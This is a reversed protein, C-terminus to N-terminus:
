PLRSCRRPVRRRRGGVPLRDSGRGPRVPTACPRTLMVACRRARDDTGLRCVPAIWRDGLQGLSGADGRRSRGRRRGSARARDPRARPVLPDTRVAQPHEAALALGSNLVQLAREPRGLVLEVWLAWFITITAAAPGTASASSSRARVSCISPRRAWRPRTSGARDDRRRRLASVSSPSPGRGPSSSAPGVGGGPVRRAGVSRRARRAATSAAARPARRRAGPAARAGLRGASADCRAPGVAPHQAGDDVLGALLARRKLLWAPLPRARRGPHCGAGVAAGPRGRHRDGVPRGRGAAAAAAELEGAGLLMQLRRASRGTGSTTPPRPACCRRARAPGLAALHERVPDPLM